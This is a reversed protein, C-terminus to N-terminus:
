VYKKDDGDECTRRTVRAYVEKDDDDEFTSTM